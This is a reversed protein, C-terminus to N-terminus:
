LDPSSFADIAFHRIKVHNLFGCQTGFREALLLFRYVFCLCMNVSVQSSQSYRDTKMPTFHVTIIFWHKRLQLFKGQIALYPAPGGRNLRWTAVICYVLISLCRSLANVNKFAASQIQHFNGFFVIPLHFLFSSLPPFLTRQHQSVHAHVCIKFFLPYFESYIQKRRMRIISTFM